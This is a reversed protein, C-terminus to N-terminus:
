VVAHITDPQTSHDDNFFNANIYSTMRFMDRATNKEEKKDSAFDLKHKTTDAMQAHCFGCKVGLSVCFEAMVSDLNEKSIDKPLVKLNEFGESVAPYDFRTAGISIFLAVVLLISLQNKKM